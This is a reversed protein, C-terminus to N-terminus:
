QPDFRKFEDDPVLQTGKPTGQEVALFVDYRSEDTIHPIAEAFWIGFERHMYVFRQAGAHWRAVEASRCTGPLM